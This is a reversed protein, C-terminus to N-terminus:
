ETGAKARGASMGRELEVVMGSLGSDYRLGIMQYNCDIARLLATADSQAIEIRNDTAAPGITENPRVAPASLDLAFKWSFHGLERQEISIPLFGHRLGFRVMHDFYNFTNFWIRRYGRAKAFTVQWQNM